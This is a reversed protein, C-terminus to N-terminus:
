FIFYKLIGKNCDIGRWGAACGEECLGTVHNCPVNDRCHGTCEQKCDLGYWGAICEKLSM